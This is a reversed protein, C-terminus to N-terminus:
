ADGDCILLGFYLFYMYCKFLDFIKDINQWYRSDTKVDVIQSSIYQGKICCEHHVGTCNTRPLESPKRKGRDCLLFKTRGSKCPNLSEKPSSKFYLSGACARSLLDDSHGSNSPARAIPLRISSPLGAPFTKRFNTSQISRPIYLRIHRRCGLHILQLLCKLRFLLNEYARSFKNKYFLM